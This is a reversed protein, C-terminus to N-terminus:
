RIGLVAIEDIKIIYKKSVQEQHQTFASVNKGLTINFKKTDKGRRDIEILTGIYVNNNKTTIAIVKNLLKDLQKEM